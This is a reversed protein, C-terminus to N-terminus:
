GIRMRRGAADIDKLGSGTILVVVSETEGIRDSEKLLGAYAASAAPEAFLGSMSALMHQADLIEDDTVEVCRGGYKGLKAAAGIGNAPVAVSISDAVTSGAVPEAFGGNRVARSIANSGAAQAAVVTPMRDALGLQVLDEFGKYVGGLIVGDGTPVYVIDPVGIRAFIELAVTKKGEITLPNYATNRSLGGNERSYSLSRSFADDYSGDVITVDAGYQLSQVLKARPASGPVFVKVRLDSAAGIGAMSSAANGTSAVVIDRIGHRRAFAAVLMSARDKLSGTPNATDDKLFVQRLGLSERIRTPEWMPTNGVPVPPFFEQPVPLFESYDSSEPWSSRAEGSLRVELVGRLPQGDEQNRSCEPCVMIDPTIAYQRDCESCRYFFEV